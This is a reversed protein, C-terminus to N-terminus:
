TDWPKVEHGCKRCVRAIDGQEWEHDCDAESLSSGEPRWERSNEESEGAGHDIHVKGASEFMIADCTRCRYKKGGFTESLIRWRHLHDSNGTEEFTRERPQIDVSQRDVVFEMEVDRLGYLDPEVYEEDYQNYYRYQGILGCRLCRRGIDGNSVFEHRCEPRPDKTTWKSAAPEDSEVPFFQDSVAPPTSFSPAFAKPENEESFASILREIRFRNDTFDENNAWYVSYGQNLYDHTTARVDKQYNRHQVEVIIGKKYDPKEDTFEVLADARRTNPETATGDVYLQVEPSCREFNEFHQRLGSVAMSKMKRHPESEGGCGSGGSRGIHFFHRARGDEFPGRARMDEGCVPCTVTVGDSVAEPIVTKDGNQAIFPMCRFVM